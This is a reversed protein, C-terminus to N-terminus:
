LYYGLWHLHHGGARCDKVVSLRHWYAGRQEVDWANWEDPGIERLFAHGDDIVFPSVWRPPEPEHPPFRLLTHLNM